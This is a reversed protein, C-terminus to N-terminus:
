AFQTKRFSKQHHLVLLFRSSNQLFGFLFPEFAVRSPSPQHIPLCFSKKFSSSLLLTLGFSFHFYYKSSLESSDIILYHKTDQQRKLSQQCRHSQNIEPPINIRKYREIRRSKFINNMLHTTQPNYLFSLPSFFSYIKPTIIINTIPVRACPFISLFGQHTQM